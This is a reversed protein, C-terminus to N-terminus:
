CSLGQFLNLTVITNFSISSFFDIKYFTDIM